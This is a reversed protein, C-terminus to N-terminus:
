AVVAGYAARWDGVGVTYVFRVKIRMEDNTFMSGMVQDDAVFLEPARGYRYGICIGELDSPDAMAYWNNADTWEPVTIVNGGGARRVNTDFNGGGYEYESTFIGLATKELEIPVLCWRPRVGLAASSHYEAQQYMAQIAADWTTASLATTGKNNHDTSVLNYTDACTVGEGSNATFMASVAAALTRNAALGMKRPLARVAAVDDRDIMELTLGLYNGKKLFTSTEAYDDWTKETYAAGEAVTDLTAVGGLTIWRVTNMNNFDAEYCFPKWWQPRSEYAKLLVKNLVNRVVEAMTSTTANAFQVRDGRFKGYREWDGTLLDYMERIGSLRRVDGESEPQEVGMLRGFAAEIRDTGTRMNSVRGAGRVVNPAVADAYSKELASVHEQFETVGIPTSQFLARCSDRLASPLKSRDVTFECLWTRIDDGAVESFAAGVGTAPGTSQTATVASPAGSADGLTSVEIRNDDSTTRVAGKQEMAAESLIFRGGAAPSVVVDVSNVKEIEVVVGKNHRLFLDASLGFVGAAKGFSRVLRALWTAHGGLQLRARIEERTEDYRATTILGVLDRVSRSGAQLRSHDAFVPAGNFLDCGLALVEGSFTFGNAKGARICVVELTDAIEGVVQLQARDTM